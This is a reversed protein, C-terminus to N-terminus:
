VESCLRKPFIRAGVHRQVSKDREGSDIFIKLREDIQKKVKHLEKRIVFLVDVASIANPSQYFESNCFKATTMIAKANHDSMIAFDCREKALMLAMTTQTSSDVRLLTNNDFFPQLVPYIYSNRTCILAGKNKSPNFPQSYPKTAYMFSRHPMLALSFFYNEPQNVWRPSSLFMDAFGRFLLQESRARESEFYEIKFHGDEELRDFFDVIVGQYNGSVEDYYIYPASGPSNIAFRLTQPKANAQSILILLLSFLRFIRTGLRNTM